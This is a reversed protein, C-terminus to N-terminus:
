VYDLRKCLTAAELSTSFANSGFMCASKFIGVAVSVYPGSFTADSDPLSAMDVSSSCYGTSLFTENIVFGEPVEAL